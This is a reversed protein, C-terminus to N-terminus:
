GCLSSLGAVSVFSGETGARGGLGGQKFQGHPLAALAERLPTPDIAQRAGAAITRNRKGEEEDEFALFLGRLASLVANHHWLEDPWASVQM